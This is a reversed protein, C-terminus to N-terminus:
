SKRNKQKGKGGGRRGSGGSLVPGPGPKPPEPTPTETSEETEPPTEEAPVTVPVADADIVVEEEVEPTEPPTEPESGAAAKADAIEQEEPSKETLNELYELGWAMADQDLNFGPRVVTRTIQNLVETSVTKHGLKKLADAVTRFAIKAFEHMRQIEAHAPDHFIIGMVTDRVSYREYASAIRRKCAAEQQRLVKAAKKAGQEEAIIAATNYEEAQRRLEQVLPAQKMMANDYKEEEAERFKLLRQADM